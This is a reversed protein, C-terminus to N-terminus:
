DGVKKLWQEAETLAADAIINESRVDSNGDRACINMTSRCDELAAVLERVLEVASTDSRTVSLDRFLIESGQRKVEGALNLWENEPIGLFQATFVDVKASTDSTRDELDQRVYRVGNFEIDAGHYPWSPDKKVSITYTEWEDEHKLESM